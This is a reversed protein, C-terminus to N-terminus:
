LVHEYLYETFMYVWKTVWTTMAQKIPQSNVRLWGLDMPSKLEDLQGQVSRYKTIQEDFMELNILEV